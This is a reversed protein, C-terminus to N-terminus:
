EGKNTRLIDQVLKTSLLDTVGSGGDGSGNMVISPMQINVNPLVKALAQTEQLALEALYIEKNSNKAMLKAQDVEAVAFGVLKISTAEYEAAIANAKQINENSEAIQLERTKDIIALDAVKQRDVTEKEAALKATVVLKEGEIKAADKQQLLINQKEIRTRDGTLQATIALQRENEQDEVISARARVRKQKDTMLGKLKDEPVVNILNIGSPVITINYAKISTDRRMPTGDANELVNVKYRFQEGVNSSGSKRNSDRTATETKVLEKVRKTVLMGNAAQDILRSKFENQGGQMFDEARFQSATYNLLDQSFPLLTTGFLNDSNKVKDHMAELLEANRPLSYRFSAEIVAGYTDAFTVQRPTSCLTANDCTEPDRTVAVTGEQSYTTTNSFFPAKLAFGESMVWTNSGTLNNQIRVFEGSGVTTFSSMVTVGLALGVAIRVGNKVLIGILEKEKSKRGEYSNM